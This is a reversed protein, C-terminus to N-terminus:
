NSEDHMVERLKTLARHQLVRAYGASIEMIKACEEHSLHNIFRLVIIQQSNPDIKRLARALRRVQTTRETVQEVLGDEEHLGNPLPVTEKRRYSDVVLNGAVRYLWSRLSAIGGDRRALKPLYAWTRAFVDATIDEAEQQDSVRYYAYRYIEDVYREYLVGFAEKDGQIALTLLHEEDLDPRDTPM